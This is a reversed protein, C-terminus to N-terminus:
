GYPRYSGLLARALLFAAGLRKTVARTTLSMLGQCVQGSVPSCAMVVALSGIYALCASLLMMSFGGMRRPAM